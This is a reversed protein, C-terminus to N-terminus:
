LSAFIHLARNLEKVIFCRASIWLIDASRITPDIELTSTPALSSKADGNMGNSFMCWCWYLDRSHTYVITRMKRPVRMGHNKWHLGLHGHNRQLHESGLLYLFCTFFCEDKSIALFILFISARFMTLFM